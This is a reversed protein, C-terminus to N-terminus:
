GQPEQLTSTYWAEPCVVAKDLEEAVRPSEALRCHYCNVPGQSRQATWDNSTAERVQLETETGAYLLM